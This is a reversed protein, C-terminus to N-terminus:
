RNIKRSEANSKPSKDKKKLKKIDKTSSKPSSSLEITEPTISALLDTQGKKFLIVNFIYIIM